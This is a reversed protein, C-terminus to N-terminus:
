IEAGSKVSTSILIQFRAYFGCGLGLGVGIDKAFYLSFYRQLLTDPWWFSPLFHIHNTGPRFSMPDKWNKPDHHVWWLNCFVTTDKAVDYGKVRCCFDFSPPLYLRTYLLKFCYNKQSPSHCIDNSCGRTDLPCTQFFSFTNHIYLYLM